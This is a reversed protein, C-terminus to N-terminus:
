CIVQDIDVAEKIIMVIAVTLPWMRWEQKMMDCLQLRVQCAIGPQGWLSTVYACGEVPNVFHWSEQLLKAGPYEPRGHLSQIRQEM